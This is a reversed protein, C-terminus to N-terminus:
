KQKIRMWENQVKEYYNLNNKIAQQLKTKDM